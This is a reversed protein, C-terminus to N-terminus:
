DSLYKSILAVKKKRNISEYFKRAYKLPLIPITLGHWVIEETKDFMDLKKNEYSNIEIKFGNIYCILSNANIKQNFFFKDIYKKLVNNFIKIGEYNTTIDIDRVPVEVGQIRLNASGDLRWIVNKNPM